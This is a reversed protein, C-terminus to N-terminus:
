SELRTLRWPLARRLAKLHQRLQLASPEQGAYRQAEFAAAFDIIVQAQAPMQRAARAAYDRPGEGPMRPVGHRALLSEFRRFLRQQVDRERQWPKFLWLALLGLLLAGGGVLGIV